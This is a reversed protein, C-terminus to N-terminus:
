LNLWEKVKGICKNCMMNTRIGRAGIKLGVSEYYLEFARYWLKSDTDYRHIAGSSRMTDILEQKTMFCLFWRPEARALM